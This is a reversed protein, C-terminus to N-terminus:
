KILITEPKTRVGGGPGIIIEKSQVKITGNYRDGLGFAGTRTVLLRERITGNDTYESDTTFRVLMLASSVMTGGGRAWTELVHDGNALVGLHKYSFAHKEKEETWIATVIGNEATISDTFYRNSNMGEVDVSVPGPLSDSLLPLLDQLARPNIPKNRFTFHENAEQFSQSISPRATGEPGAANKAEQSSKSVPAKAPSESAGTDKGAEPAKPVSSNAPGELAAIRAEYAASMCAADTCADRVTGIWQQQEKKLVERHPAKKLAQRYAEALREDLGSLGQDSCVLKESATSAKACDFSAGSAAGVTAWFVASVCIMGRVWSANAWLLLNKMVKKGAFNGTRIVAVRGSAVARSSRISM